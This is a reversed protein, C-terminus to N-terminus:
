PLRAKMSSKYIQARDFDARTFSLQLGKWANSQSSKLGMVSQTKKWSGHNFFNSVHRSKEGSLILLEMLYVHM